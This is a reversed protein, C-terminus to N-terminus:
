DIKHYKYKNKYICREVHATCEHCAQRFYDNPSYCSDKNLYAISPDVDEPYIFKINENLPQQKTRAM